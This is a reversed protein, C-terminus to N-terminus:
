DQGFPSLREFGALGLTLRSNKFPSLVTIIILTTARLEFYTLSTLHVYFVNWFSLPTRTDLRM